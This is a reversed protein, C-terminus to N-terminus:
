ALVVVALIADIVAAHHRGIEIGRRCNGDRFWGRRGLWSAGSERPRVPRDEVAHGDPARAPRTPLKQM